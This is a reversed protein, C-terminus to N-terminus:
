ILNVFCVEGKSSSRKSSSPPHKNPLPTSESKRETDSEAGATHSDQQAM